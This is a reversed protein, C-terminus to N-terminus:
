NNVASDDTMRDLALIINCSKQEGVVLKKVSSHIPHSLICDVHTPAGIKRRGM